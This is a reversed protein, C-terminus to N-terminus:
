LHEISDEVNDVVDIVVIVVVVDVVEVVDSDVRILNGGIGVTGVVYHDDDRWLTSPAAM